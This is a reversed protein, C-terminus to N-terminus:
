GQKAFFLCFSRRQAAFRLNKRAKACFITGLRVNSMMYIINIRKLTRAGTKTACARARAFTQSKKAKLSIQISAFADALRKLPMKFADTNSSRLAHRRTRRRPQRRKSTQFIHMKQATGCETMDPRVAPRPQIKRAASNESHEAANAAHIKEQLKNSGNSRLHSVILSNRRPCPRIVFSRCQPTPAPRRSSHSRLHPPTRSHKTLSFNQRLSLRFFRGQM